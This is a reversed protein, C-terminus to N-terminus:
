QEGAAEPISVGRLKQQAILRVLTGQKGDVHLVLRRLDTEPYGLDRTLAVFNRANELRIRDNELAAREEDLQRQRKSNRREILKLIFDKIHGIVTGIGALDTAGPSAYSIRRVELREDPELLQSLRSLQAEDLVPPLAGPFGPAWPVAGWYPFRKRWRHRFPPFHMLEDYFREWERQDERLLELFLRLDYLDSVSVLAQGLDEASWRGDIELRLIQTSREM